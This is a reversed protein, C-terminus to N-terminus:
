HARGDIRAQSLIPLYRRAILGFILLWLAATAHICALYATPALQPLLVRVFLALVTLYLIGRDYSDFDVKRGTHGKSIRMIMAPIVCGMAGLTFLHTSASGTWQWGLWLSGADMVLQGSIALYGVYMIGIDIRQMAKLPHWFPLRILLLLALLAGAAAVGTAPLLPAGILLLGLGKISMDLIPQRLIQVSFAAKMFQTLTRELMVLFALRFLALSMHEGAEFAEGGALLLNKALLFSPLMIVFILNDRYSDQHRYRLLTWALMAAISGIFLNAGIFFLPSPWNEGLAITIRELIWALALWILAYGHYGRINVWNKTSTLLFGGLVAWGFGYFMEHVHWQVGPLRQNLTSLNGSFTLAWWLPLIMGALCALSFFARFGALWIPHRPNLLM